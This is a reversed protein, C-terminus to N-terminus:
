RSSATEPKAAQGQLQLEASEIKAWSDRLTVIRNFVPATAAHDQADACFYGLREFQVAEGPAIARLSPELKARTEDCSHRNYVSMFDDAANPDAFRDVLYDTYSAEPSLGEHMQIGIWQSNLLYYFASHAHLFRHMRNIPVLNSYRPRRSKDRGEVDNVFWQLLVFDPAAPLVYKELIDVHDVTEAGPKGFNLVEFRATPSASQLRRELLNSFRNEEPIGQGWAFSDGVVAIRYVGPPKEESFDRERFGLRNTRVNGARWKLAFYSTNDPTTTIDRFWLRAAIEAATLSLLASVLTLVVTGLLTRVTVKKRKM